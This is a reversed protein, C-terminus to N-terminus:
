SRTSYTRVKSHHSAEVFIIVEDESLGKDMPCVLFNKSHVERPGDLVPMEIVPNRCYVAVLCKTGGFVYSM